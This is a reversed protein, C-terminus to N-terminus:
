QIGCEDYDKWKEYHEKAEFYKYVLLATSAVVLLLAGTLAWFSKKSSYSAMKVSEKENEGPMLIQAASRSLLSVPLQNSIQNYLLSYLFDVLKM